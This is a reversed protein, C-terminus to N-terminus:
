GSHTSVEITFTFGQEIGQAVEFGHGGVHEHYVV